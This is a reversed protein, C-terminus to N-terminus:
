RNQEPKVWIENGRIEVPYQALPRRPPGALVRGDEASFYGEHCPCVLESREAKFHVPCALHTCSQSFAVYRDAALRVLICPADETPYRFLKYGGVKLEDIRAVCRAPGSPGGVATLLRGTAGESSGVLAAMSLWTLSRAFARRSVDSEGGPGLPPKAKAAQSLKLHDSM